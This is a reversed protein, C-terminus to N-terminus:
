DIGSFELHLIRRRLARNSEWYYVRGFNGLINELGPQIPFIDVDRAAASADLLRTVVGARTFSAMSRGTFAFDPLCLVAQLKGSEAAAEVIRDALTRYVSLLSRRDEDTNFGYPPDCVIAQAGVLSVDKIPSHTAQMRAGSQLLADSRMTVARSYGDELAPIVEFLDNGDIPQSTGTAQAGEQAERITIFKDLRELLDEVERVFHNVQREDYSNTNIDAPGLGVRFALYRVILEWNIDASLDTQSRLPFTEDVSNTQLARVLRGVDRNVLREKLRRLDSALQSLEAGSLSFFRRNLAIAPVSGPLIDSASTEVNDFKLAELILTGSGAFPDAITMKREGSQRSRAINIMSAALSHPLTVPGLWAPMEEEFLLMPNANRYLQEYCILHTPNRELRPDTAFSREGILWITSDDALNESHRPGLHTSRYDGPLAFYLQEEFEMRLQDVAVTLAINGLHVKDVYLKIEDLGDRLDSTRREFPTFDEHNFVAFLRKRTMPNNDLYRSLDEVLEEYNARQLPRQFFVKGCSHIFGSDACIAALDLSTAPPLSVTCSCAFPDVLAAQSFFEIFGDALEKAIEKSSTDDAIADRMDACIGSIFSGAQEYTLLRLRDSRNAEGLSHLNLLSVLEAYQMNTARINRKFLFFYGNDHERWWRQVFERRLSQDENPQADLAAEFANALKTTLDIDPM